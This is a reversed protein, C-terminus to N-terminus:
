LLVGKIFIRQEDGEKGLQNCSRDNQVAFHRRLKSIRFIAPDIRFVKRLSEIDKGQPQEFLHNDCIGEGCSDIEAKVGNFSQTRQLSDNDGDGIGELDKKIEATVAVHRDADAAQEVNFQGLIKVGGVFCVGDRIEPVPPMHGEGPEQPCIDVDGQASVPSSFQPCVEIDHHDKQDASDPVSGIPGKHQPAHKM